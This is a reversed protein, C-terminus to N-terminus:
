RARMSGVRSSGMSDAHANRQLTPTPAKSHSDNRARLARWEWSEDRRAVWRQAIARRVTWSPQVFDLDVTIARLHMDMMSTDRDISAAAVIPSVGEVLDRVRDSRQGVMVEDDVAFRGHEAIGPQGVKLRQPALERFLV